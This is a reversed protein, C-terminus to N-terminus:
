KGDQNMVGIDESHFPENSANRASLPLTGNTYLASKGDYAFKGPKRVGGILLQEWEPHRKRLNALLQLNIRYDEQGAVDDVGATGVSLKYLHVHYHHIAGVLADTGLKYHNSRVVHQSGLMAGIAANYRWDSHGPLRPGMERSLLGSRDREAAPPNIVALIDAAGMGPANIMARISDVDGMQRNKGSLPPPGGRGGGGRGGDGRGRGGYDGGGRGGSYDGGGRGGNDGRGGGGGLGYVFYLMLM